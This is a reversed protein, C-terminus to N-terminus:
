SSCCSDLGMRCSPGRKREKGTHAMVLYIIVSTLMLRMSLLQFFSSWLVNRFTCSISKIPISVDVMNSWYFVKWLKILNSVDVMNVLLFNEAFSTHM